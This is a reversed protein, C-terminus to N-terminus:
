QLLKFTRSFRVGHPGGLSLWIIDARGKIYSLPVQGFSPGGRILPFRSDESDDRNDGMVFVHGPQVTWTGESFPSWYPGQRADETEQAVHNVRGVREEFQDYKQFPGARTDSASDGDGNLRVGKKLWHWELPQCSTGGPCVTVHRDQVIVKDGPLGIVRKIIDDGSPDAPNNFVVIDGRKPARQFFKLDTFPISLGYVFKNVFLHDGVLLTPVMSASPIQFAEYFFARIFLAVVVAGGIQETYERVASKRTLVKDALEDLKKAAFELAALDTGPLAQELTRSADELKQKTGEGIWTRQKKAAARVGKLLRHAQRRARRLADRERLGPLYRPLLYLAVCGALFSLWGARPEAHALFLGFLIGAAVAVAALALLSLGMPPLAKVEGGPREDPLDVTGLRRRKAEVSM